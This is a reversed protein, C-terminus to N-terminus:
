NVAVIVTTSSCSPKWQFQAISVVAIEQLTDAAESIRGETEQIKALRRTLRAREIEVIIQVGCCPRRSIDDAAGKHQCGTSISGQLAHQAQYISSIAQTYSHMAVCTLVMQLPLCNAPTPKCSLADPPAPASEPVRVKGETVSQLTKILEVTIEKDPAQDVYSVAQKVFAQM